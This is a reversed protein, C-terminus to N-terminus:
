PKRELHRMRTGTSAVENAGRYDVTHSTLTHPGVMRVDAVAEMNSQLWIGEVDEFTLKVRVKKLWWSPTKAVEGEIQRVLFLHKDVWVQGSILNKEKRKPKLGLLYCPQGDIVTEGVYTFAYNERTLASRAQNGNSSSEVENDLVRRVVQEGRNSGSSIQIRYNKNAPPNFDVEAIVTSNASSDNAGFLRYERIVQYSAKPRIRAQTKELAEVISTLSTAGQGNAEQAVGWCCLMAILAVALLWGTTVRV